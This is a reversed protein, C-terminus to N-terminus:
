GRVCTLQLEKKKERKDEMKVMVQEKGEGDIEKEVRMIGEEEMEKAFEGLSAWRTANLHTHYPDRIYENYAKNIPVWNYGFKTVIVECFAQQM